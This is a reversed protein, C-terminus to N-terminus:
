PKVELKKLKEIDRALKAKDRVRQLEIAPNKERMRRACDDYLLMAAESKMRYELSGVLRDADRRRGM